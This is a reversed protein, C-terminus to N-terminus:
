QLSPELVVRGKGANKASYLAQDARQFFSVPDDDPRLEAVGASVQLSGSSQPPAAAIASQLRHYLQDADEHTSEPLIVGFEDGGVRCAIDASRVVDRVREAVEALVTDGALHGIRDNIAKFDDLDFVLLALRRSYRHGRAVERALTEHFYRRNHLGTLADLDALQRAEQFRQANEIAPGSGQALLELEAAIDSGLVSADRRTLVTLLGMTGGSGRIPVAVGATVENKGPGGPLAEYVISCVGLRLGHEPPILAYEEAEEAALGEAVVLPAQSPRLLTILAADVGSLAGAAALTKALAEDLDISGALESFFRGRRAEERAQGAVSALEVRMAEMRETLERISEAARDEARTRSRRALVFAVAVASCLIATLAATALAVLVTNM